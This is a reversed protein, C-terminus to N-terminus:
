LRNGNEDLLYVGRGVAFKSSLVPNEGSEILRRHTHYYTVVKEIQEPTPNINDRLRYGKVKLGRAHYQKKSLHTVVIIKTLKSIDDENIQKQMHKECIYMVSGQKIQSRQTCHPSRDKFCDKEM